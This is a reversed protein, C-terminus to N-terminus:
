GLLVCTQAKLLHQELEKKGRAVDRNKIAEYINRHEGVSEMIDGHATIGKYGYLSMQRRSEDLIATIRSNNLRNILYFHFDEDLAPFVDETGNKVTAEQRDIIDKISALDEDTAKHVANELAFSEIALRLQFMEKIDKSNISSVLIGKRPVVQLLGEDDLRLIADRVPSRGMGLLAILESISTITGAALKGSLIMQKIEEYALDKGNQKGNM